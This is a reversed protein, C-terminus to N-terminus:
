KRGRMARMESWFVFVIGVCFPGILLALNGFIFLFFPMAMLGVWFVIVDSYRPWLKANLAVFLLALTFSLVPKIKEEPLDISAMYGLVTFLLAVVFLAIGTIRFYMIPEGYGNRFKTLCLSFISPVILHSSLKPKLKGHSAIYPMLTATMLAFRVNLAFIIPVLLYGDELNQVMIIQLPSSYIFASAAIAQSISLTQTACLIGFLFYIWANLLGIPIFDTLIEARKNM